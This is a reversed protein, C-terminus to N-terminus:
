SPKGGFQALTACLAGAAQMQQVAREGDEPLANVARIADTLLVVAFGAALADLVSARVCYDTALGGVFLRTCDRQRLWDALGTHDFASYTNAGPETAKSIVFASAPVELGPAFAAGASGAICHAPWPGGLPRFSVHNEPHWDRSFIVPRNQFLDLYRNLVPVVADGDPVGLAGGPLFDCQVDVILLADGAHPSLRTEQNRENM